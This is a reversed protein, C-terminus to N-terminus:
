ANGDGKREGYSCFDDDCFNYGVPEGDSGRLRFCFNIGEWVKSERYYKCDKCRVVEVADVTPADEMLKRAGGAPGIHVRDYEDILASRSILDVKENGEKEAQSQLEDGM